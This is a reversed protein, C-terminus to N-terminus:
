KGITEALTQGLEFADKMAVCQKLLNEKCEKIENTLNELNLKYNSEKKNIAEIIIINLGIIAVDSCLIHKELFEVNSTICQSSMANEILQFLHHITKPNSSFYTTNNILKLLEEEFTRLVVNWIETFIKKNKQEKNNNTFWKLRDKLTTWLSDIYEDSPKKFLSTITRRLGGLTTTAQHTPYRRTISFCNEFKEFHSKYQTQDNIRFLLHYFYNEKTEVQKCLLQSNYFQLIKEIITAETEFSSELDKQYQETICQFDKELQNKFYDLQLSKNQDLENQVSKLLQKQADDVRTKRLLDTLREEFMKELLHQAFHIPPKMSRSVKQKMEPLYCSREINGDFSKQAQDIALTIITNLQHNFDEIIRDRNKDIFDKRSSSLLKENILKEGDQYVAANTTQIINNAIMQLEKM